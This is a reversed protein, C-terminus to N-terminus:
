LSSSKADGSNLRTIEVAVVEGCAELGVDSLLLAIDADSMHSLCSTDRFRVIVRGAASPDEIVSGNTITFDNKQLFGWIGYIAEGPRSTWCYIDLDVPQKGYLYDSVEEPILFGYDVADFLEDTSLLGKFDLFEKVRSSDSKKIIRDFDAARKTLKKDVNKTKLSRPMSRRLLVKARLSQLTLIPIAPLRFGFGGRNFM